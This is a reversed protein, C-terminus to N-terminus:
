QVTEAQVSEEKKVVPHDTVYKVVDGLRLTEYPQDFEQEIVQKQFMTIMALAANLLLNLKAVSPNAALIAAFFTQAELPANDWNPSKLKNFVDAVKLDYNWDGVQFISNLLKDRVDVSSDSMRGIIKELEPWRPNWEEVEKLLRSQLNYSAKQLGNLRQVEIQTPESDLGRTVCYTDFEDKSMVEFVPKKEDGFVVKLQGNELTETDKVPRTSWFRTESM